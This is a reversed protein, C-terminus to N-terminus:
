KPAHIFASGYGENASTDRPSEWKVTVPISTPFNLNLGLSVLSSIHTNSLSLSIGLPSKQTTLPLAKKYIKKHVNSLSIQIPLYLSKGDWCRLHYWNFAAIQGRFHSSSSGTVKIDSHGGPSKYRLVNMIDATLIEIGFTFTCVILNFGSSREM